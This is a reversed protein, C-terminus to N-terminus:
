SVLQMKKALRQRVQVKVDDKDGIDGMRKLDKTAQLLKTETRQMDDQLRKLREEALFHYYLIFFVFRVKSFSFTFHTFLFTCVPSM